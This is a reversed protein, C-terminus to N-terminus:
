LEFDMEMQKQQKIEAEIKEKLLVCKQLDLLLMKHNRFRCAREIMETTEVFNEESNYWEEPNDNVSYIKLEEKGYTMEDKSMIRSNKSEFIDINKTILLDCIEREKTFYAGLVVKENARLSIVNPLKENINKFVERTKESHFVKEAEENSACVLLVINCLFGYVKRKNIYQQGINQYKYELYNQSCYKLFGDLFPLIIVKRVVEPKMEFCFDMVNKYSSLNPSEYIKEMLKETKNSEYCIFGAAFYEMFSKHVWKYSVGDRQLLPIAHTLDELVSEASTNLWTASEIAFQIIEIIDAKNQYEVKSKKLSLFAIRRLLREFDTSDLGSEKEHVYAGGKIKDHDNFLAEYVQTYFDLKKYAIEEKYQFTKYLLSTLLANTLFEKLVGVQNDNKIRKILEKSKEGNNDYIEILRFAEAMSLPKISFREFNDLAMLDTEERSTLFYQNNDAKLLFDNICNLMEGKLENAVEDYGDFFIVFNGERLMSIIDEERICKGLLRFQSAIYKIIDMGEPVRRLEVLVPIKRTDEIYKILLFKVITSKGMGATDVILVRDMSDLLPLCQDDILYNKSKQQEEKYITLPLYLDCLTKSEGRFVITNMTMAKKYIMELYEQLCEEIESSKEGYGVGKQFIPKVCTEILAKVCESAATELGKSAMLTAIGELVMSKEEVRVKWFAGCKSLHYVM